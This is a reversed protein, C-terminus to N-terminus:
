KCQDFFNQLSCNNITQLTIIPAFSLCTAIILLLVSTWIQIQATTKKPVNLQFM